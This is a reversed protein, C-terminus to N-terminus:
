SSSKRPPKRKYAAYEKSKKVYNNVEFITRYNDPFVLKGNNFYFQQATTINGSRINACIKILQRNKFFYRLALSDTNELKIEEVMILIRKKLDSYKFHLRVQKTINSDKDVETYLSDFEYLIDRSEIEKVASDVLSVYQAQACCIKTIVVLVIFILLKM